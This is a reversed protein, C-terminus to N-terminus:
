GTAPEEPGKDGRESQHARRREGGAAGRLSSSAEPGGAGAFGAANAQTCGAGAGDPHRVRARGEPCAM